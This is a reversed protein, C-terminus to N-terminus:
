KVEGLSRPRTYRNILPVATNMLLISYMVGEPYGGWLRIVVVLVGAGIGFIWRGLKTTPSSVMDTAMFLAGLMLGGAFIHFIPDTGFAFAGLFVTGVMALPIRWNVYGKYLLYAFGLLLALASTEGLSGGIQGVFLNWTDTAIGEMKMQSLPTASSVGDVTWTTMLVPYSATLFARGVLAPNFPNQGIGGFVQKGLGIAVVSGFFATWLPISPPLTLALLLGTVVASGDKITIKKKRIRQFIYETLVAGAVATLIVSIARAQFFYVAAFVAPLLAIVVSWMIKKVSDQSRVHPSSTVILENNM